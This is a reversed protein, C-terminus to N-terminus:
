GFRSGYISALIPKKDTETVLTFGSYIQTVVQPDRNIQVSSLVFEILIVLGPVM